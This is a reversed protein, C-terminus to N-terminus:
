FIDLIDLRLIDLIYNWLTIWMSSKLYKVNKRKDFDELYIHIKCKHCIEIWVVANKTSLLWIHSTALM